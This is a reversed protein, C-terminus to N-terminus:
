FPKVVMDLIILGFLVANIPFFLFMMRGGADIHSIVEEAPRM